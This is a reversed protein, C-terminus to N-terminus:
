AKKFVVCTTEITRFNWYLEEAVETNGKAKALLLKFWVKAIGAIKVPIPLHKTTYNYYLGGLVIKGEIVSLGKFDSALEAVSPRYLTDIPDAHFPFTHPVTVILATNQNLISTLGEIFAHRDELHELLNACIILSPNLAKLKGTFEPNTVDGAIDVGPADKIDINKVNCNLENLTNIVNHQIYPQEKLFAETSSGINLVTASNGAYKLIAQKIWFSENLLM